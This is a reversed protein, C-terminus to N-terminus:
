VDGGVFYHFRDTLRVVTEDNLDRKSTDIRVEGNVALHMIATFAEDIRLAESQVIVGDDDFVQYELRPLMAGASVHGIKTVPGLQRLVDRVRVLAAPDAHRAHYRMVRLNRMRPQILINEEDLVNYAADYNGLSKKIKATRKEVWPWNDQDLVSIVDYYLAREDVTWVGFEPIHEVEEIPGYRDWEQYIFKRPYAHIAVVDPHTDFLVLADMTLPEKTRIGGENCKQTSFLGRMKTGRNGPGIIKLPVHDEGFGMIERITEM